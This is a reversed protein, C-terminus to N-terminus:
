RLIVPMIPLPAYNAGGCWAIRWRVCMIRSSFAYPAPTLFPLFIVSSSRWVARSCATFSIALRNFKCYNNAYQYGFIGMSKVQEEHHVEVGSRELRLSRPEIGLPLEVSLCCHFNLGFESFGFFFLTVSCPCSGHHVRWLEFLQFEIILPTSTDCFMTMGHDTANIRNLAKYKKKPKDM